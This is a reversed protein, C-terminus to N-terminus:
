NKSESEKLYDLAETYSAFGKGKITKEAVLSIYSIKRFDERKDIDTLHVEITKISTSKIADMLAISTHTLGGANIIIGDVKNFYAEQLKDILDGEHNSQYVEVDINLSKAHENILNVLDNYTETGYLEKERIGIFNINPGNIVLVKM